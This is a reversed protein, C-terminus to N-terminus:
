EGSGDSVVYQYYEKFSGMSLAKLRKRLRAQLLELKHAELHIGSHEYVLKALQNFENWKMEAAMAMGM